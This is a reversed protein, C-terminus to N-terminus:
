SRSKKLHAEMTSTNAEHILNPILKEMHFDFAKIM